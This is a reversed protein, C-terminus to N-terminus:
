PNSITSARNPRTEQPVLGGGVADIRWKGPPAVEASNECLVPDVERLNIADIDADCLGEDAFDAEIHGAPGILVVKRRPQAEAGIM